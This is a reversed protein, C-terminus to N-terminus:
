QADEYDVQVVFQCMKGFVANRKGYVGDKNNKYQQWGTGPFTEKPVCSWLRYSSRKLAADVMELGSVKFNGMGASSAELMIHPGTHHSTEPGSSGDDYVPKIVFVGGKLLLRHVLPEYLRGWLAGVWSCSFIEEQCFRLWKPHVQDSCCLRLEPGPRGRMWFNDLGEKRDVVNMNEYSTRYPEFDDLFKGIEERSWVWMYFMCCLGGELWKSPDDLMECIIQDSVDYRGEAVGECILWLVNERETLLVSCVRTHPLFVEFSLCIAMFEIVVVPWVCAGLVLDLLSVMLLLVKSACWSYWSSASQELKKAAFVPVRLLQIVEDYTLDKLEGVFEYGESELSQM